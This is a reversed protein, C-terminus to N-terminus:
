ASATDTAALAALTMMLIESDGLNHEFLGTVLVGTVLAIGGHLLWHSEAPAHKIAKFWRTLAWFFISVIALMAPIGREAAFQLYINHLHGYFGEPLPRPIDPPVYKQFTLGVQEPGTGLLPHAQIMAMGTRWTIVRHMNSDMEGRPQILSSARTRVSEPGAVLVVAAAIPLTAVTWPRWRALLYVLGCFAAIWIGRTMALVLAIGIIFLAAALAIRIRPSFGGWFLLAAGLLLAFMMQSSFTMWHSMFGTIRDAVYAVYFEQGAAAARTWKLSFQVLGWLAAATGVAVWALALRRPFNRTLRFTTFVIPLMLLVYLKRVQPWGAAPDPSFALSLLTLAVFLALPWAFRPAQWRSRSVLLLGLSLGLLSQSAAISVLSLSAAGWAAWASALILRQQRDASTM